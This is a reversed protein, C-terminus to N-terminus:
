FCKDSLHKKRALINEIKRNVLTPRSSIIIFSVRQLATREPTLLFIFFSTSMDSIFHYDKSTTASLRTLLLVKIVSCYFFRSLKSFFCIFFDACAFLKRKFFSAVKLVTVKLFFALSLESLSQNKFPLEIASSEFLAALQKNEDLQM